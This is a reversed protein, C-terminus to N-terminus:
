EDEPDFSFIQKGLGQLESDDLHQCYSLKLVKRAVEDYNPQKEIVIPESPVNVYVEKEVYVM